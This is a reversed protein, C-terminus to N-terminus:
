NKSLYQNNNYMAITTLMKRSKPSVKSKSNFYDMAKADEKLMTKLVERSYAVIYGDTGNQLFYEDTATAGNYYKRCYVNLKGSVIKVAFGPLAEVAIKGTKSSTILKSSVAYHEKDQYAMIDKSNIVVKNDALLYPTTLVGTVLKLDAYQKITGDNLQVFCSAPVQNANEVITKPSIVSDKSVACSNFLVTISCLAAVFFTAKKM